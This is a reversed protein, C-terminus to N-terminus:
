AEAEPKATPPEPTSATTGPLPEEATTCRREVGLQQCVADVAVEAMLRFTTTKGGTITVFGAM